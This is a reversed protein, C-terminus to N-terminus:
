HLLAELRSAASVTLYAKMLIHRIKVSTSEASPVHQRHKARAPVKFFVTIM